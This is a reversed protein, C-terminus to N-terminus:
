ERARVRDAVVLSYAAAFGPTTRIVRHGRERLLVLGAAGRQELLRLGDHAGLVFVATSLADAEIGTRAVVTAALIGRAPRGTRPDLIHGPRQDGGSSAVAAEEVRFSAWPEGDPTEPDRVDVVLPEGFVGLSSGGLDVLGSAAGARKLAALALDAAYGKAIGGLDLRTGPRLYLAGRERDVRVRRFGVGALLRRREAADLVRPAGGLGGTARVLPEVTPDFAGSSASAVELGHAVVALLDASARGGGADNLRTLESPKWLSMADDVRALAAFAADLVPEAEALGTLRVEASTGMVVRVERAPPPPMSLLLGAAAAPLVVSV